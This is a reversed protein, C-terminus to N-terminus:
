NAVIALFDRSYPELLKGAIGLQGPVVPVGSPGGRHHVYLYGAVWDPNIDLEIARVAGAAVLASALESPLLQEGAAWVLQGSATIGLASRAVTTASGVTAGWCALICSSVSGAPVGHDVLLHQNQLVSFVTKQASPLGNGWAGVNTTGDTYTVISALGGQLPAAVHGGSAFGVESYTLKFGGNFAAIVHHIERPTISDGYIWGATGGDSSGAHLTVHVLSQDFRLLTVGARQAIWAAPQGRVEAVTTWGRTAHVPANVVLPPVVRAPTASSVRALRGAGPARVSVTVTRTAHPESGGGRLGLYAGVAVLLVGSVAVMALRAGIHVGGGTSM